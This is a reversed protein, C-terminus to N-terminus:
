SQLVDIEVLLMWEVAPRVISRGCVGWNGSQTWTALETGLEFIESENNENEIEIAIEM